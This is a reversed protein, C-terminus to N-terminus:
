KSPFTAAYEAARTVGAQIRVETSAINRSLTWGQWATGVIAGIFFEDRGEFIGMETLRTKMEALADESTFNKM